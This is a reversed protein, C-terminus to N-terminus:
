HRILTGISLTFCWKTQTFNRESFSLRFIVNMNLIIILKLGTRYDRTDTNFHSSILPYKVPLNEEMFNNLSFLLKLDYLPTIFVLVFSFLSMLELRFWEVRIIRIDLDM